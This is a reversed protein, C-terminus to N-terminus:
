AVRETHLLQVDQKVAHKGLGNKSEATMEALRWPTPFPLASQLKPHLQIKTGAWSTQQGISTMPAAQESVSPEARSSPASPSDHRSPVWAEPRRGM